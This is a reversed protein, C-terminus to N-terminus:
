RHGEVGRIRKIERRSCASLAPRSSPRPAATCASSGYLHRMHTPLFRLVRTESGSLPERLRDPESARLARLEATGLSVRALARLRDALSWDQAAQAHRIAEVLYGHASFWGAAAGHLTALEAPETRRLELQLLEAFLQHYRFWSRRADLAVM